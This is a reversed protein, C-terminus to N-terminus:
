NIKTTLDTPHEANRATEAPPDMMAQFTEKDVPLSAVDGGESAQLTVEFGQFAVEGTAPDQSERYSIQRELRGYSADVRFSRTRADWDTGTSFYIEYVGPAINKEVFNKGAQVYFSRVARMLHPDVLNVLADYSTGNKINLEGHGDIFLRSKIETGNTLSVAPLSNMPSPDPAQFSSFPHFPFGATDVNSRGATNCLSLVCLAVALPVFIRTGFRKIENPDPLAACSSFPLSRVARSRSVMPLYSDCTIPLM